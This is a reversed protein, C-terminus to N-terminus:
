TNLYKPSLKVIKSFQKNQKIFKKAIFEKQIKSFNLFRSAKWDLFFNFFNSLIFKLNKDRHNYRFLLDKHSNVINDKDIQFKKKLKLFNSLKMNFEEPNESLTELTLFLANAKKKKFFKYLNLYNFSNLISNNIKGKQKLFTEHSTFNKRFYSSYFYKYVSEICDVQNRIIVIFKCKFGLKSFSSILRNLTMYINHNKWFYQCTIGEESILNVKTNSFKIKKLDNTILYKKKNFETKSYTLIKELAKYFYNDQIGFNNKRGIFLLKNNKSFLNKQLFTSGSRPFGIHIYIEKNKSM